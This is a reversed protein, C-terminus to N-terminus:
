LNNQKDLYELVQRVNCLNCVAERIAKVADNWGESRAMEVAKLADEKPVYEAQDYGGAVANSVYDIANM